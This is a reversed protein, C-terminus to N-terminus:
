RKNGVILKFNLWFVAVWKISKDQYSFMPGFPRTLDCIVGIVRIEDCFPRM